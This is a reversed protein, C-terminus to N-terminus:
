REIHRLQKRRERWRKLAERPIFRLGRHRIRWALVANQAALTLGLFLPFTAAVATGSAVSTVIADVALRAAITAVWAVPLLWGGRRVAFQGREAIKITFARGVGAVIAVALQAGFYVLQAQTLSPREWALVVVGVATAVIPLVLLQRALVPRPRLQTRLLLLLILVGLLLGAV